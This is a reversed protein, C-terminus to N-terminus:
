RTVLKLHHTIRRNFILNRFGAVRLPTNEKKNKGKEESNM